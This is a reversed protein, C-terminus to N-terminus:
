RRRPRRRCTGTGIVLGVALLVIASGTGSGCQAEQFTATYSATTSGTTISHSAAGGDSWSTFSWWKGSDDQQFPADVQLEYGEWSTIRRPATITTGNVELELGSPQTNFNVDVLHPRLDQAITRSLGKSDTATLFIELYNTTTAALDEPAPATFAINNGSTPALFPHTHTNHHLIMRWSLRSDPLTGDQQDTASGRLTLGEGVRFLKSPSPLQITPVPATNGADIRVTDTGTAGSPDRVTLRATYTGPVTYTHAPNATTAHPSNDGFNWDYTLADGDPDSSGSGNFAVTLPVTAGSTPSASADAVPSRNAPGTFAVRRILGGLNYTTYYLARSSGHPGFALVVASQNGLGTVFDSVSTGKLLQIKGCTFDGYLYGGFYASPWIGDPVFAGGTIAECGSSHPYDHIPNTMGAPPAGCNTASGRACHGERVNWGYDAGAKGLNVEEWFNQGVDNIYFRTYPVNPDFAIRFPNRLGSAFTEQCWKGATTRGTLNCRASDSGQYPNGSPIGGSTSIRLIKGLLVHRDRAANNASGCGSDGAYDCGGDGVSVYLKGDKGFQLDGANHIAGPSPINDILVQESAPDIVNSDPLVFRSVRNVPSGSSAPTTANNVPCDSSKKFTYYLYIRRNSAFDPDVAVGLLGREQDSCIKSSLDIAPTSQLAGNKYVRLQGFHSTILLRGDPTFALATPGSVQTVLTDEFNPPVAGSAMPAAGALGVLTMALALCTLGRKYRIHSSDWRGRDPELPAPRLFGSLAAKKV